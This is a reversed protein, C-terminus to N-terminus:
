KTALRDTHTTVYATYSSHSVEPILNSTRRISLQSTRRTATTSHTWHSKHRVGPLLQSTRRTYSTVHSTYVLPCTRTDRHIYMYQGSDLNHHVYRTHNSTHRGHGRLVDVGHLTDTNNYMYSVYSM